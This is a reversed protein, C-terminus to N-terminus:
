LLWQPIREPHLCQTLIASVTPIGQDAPLDCSFRRLPLHKDCCCKKAVLLLLPFLWSM